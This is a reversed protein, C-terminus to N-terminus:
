RRGMSVKRSVMEVTTARCTMLVRWSRRARVAVRFSEDAGDALFASVDVVEIGMARMLAEALVRWLLMRRHARDVGGDQTAFDEVAQDVPVGSGSSAVLFGWTL